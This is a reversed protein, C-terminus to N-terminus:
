TYRLLICFFTKWISGGRLIFMNRLLKIFRTKVWPRGCASWPNAMGNEQGNREEGNEQRVAPTILVGGGYPINKGHSTTIYRSRRRAVGDTVRARRILSTEGSVVSGSVPPRPCTAFHIPSTGRPRSSFFASFCMPSFALSYFLGLYFTPLLLKGGLRLWAPLCFYKTKEGRHGDAVFVCYGVDNLLGLIGATM